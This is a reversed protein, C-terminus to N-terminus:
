RAGLLSPTLPSPRTPCAAPDVVKCWALLEPARGRKGACSEERRGEKLEEEEEDGGWSSPNGVSAGEDPGEERVERCAEGGWGRGRVGVLLQFFERSVGGEDLGEEPVGNSIFTVRLPKKLDQSFPTILTAFTVPLPKKLDQSILM